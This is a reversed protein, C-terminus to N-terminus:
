IALDFQPQLFLSFLDQRLAEQLLSETRLHPTATEEHSPEYLAYQNRGSQKARKLATDAQRLLAQANTTEGAGNTTAIGISVSLHIRTDQHWFGEAIHGHLYAALEGIRKSLHLCGVAIGFEDAGTRAFCIEHDMAGIHARVWQSRLAGDLRLALECLLRDGTEYGLEQNVRQFGDIDLLLLAVAREPSNDLIAQQLFRMFHVRHALGTLQDTPVALDFAPTPPLHTAPPVLVAQADGTLWELGFGTLDALAGLIQHWPPALGPSGWLILGHIRGQTAIQTLLWHREAQPQVWALGQTLAQAVQGQDILQEFQLRLETEEAAPLCYVMELTADPQRLLVAMRISPLMLGAAHEVIGLLEALSRCASLRRIVQRLADFALPYLSAKAGAAQGSDRSVPAWYRPSILRKM